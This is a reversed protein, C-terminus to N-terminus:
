LVVFNLWLLGSGIAVTVLLVLMGVKLFEV